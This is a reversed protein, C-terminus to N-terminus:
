KCLNVSGFNGPYCQWASFYADVTCVRCWEKKGASPGWPWIQFNREYAMIYLRGSNHLSLHSVNGDPRPGTNAHWVVSGGNYIVFNGDQQMVAYAGPSYTGSSWIPSWNGDYQVLNGDTQMVLKYVGNPSAISQGSFLYQGPRFLTAPTMDWWGDAFGGPHWYKTWRIDGAFAIMNGSDEISLFGAYGGPHPIRLAHPSRSIDFINYLPVGNWSYVVLNGDTQFVAFAGPHGHTSAHWIPNWNGDYLVLNGDYQMVLRALGNNSTFMGGPNIRSGAPLSNSPPVWEQAAAFAAWSLLISAVFWRAYKM